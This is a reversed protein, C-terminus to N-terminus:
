FKVNKCILLNDVFNVYLIYLEIGFYCMLVSLKRMFLIKVLLQRGERFVKRYSGFGILRGCFLDFMDGLGFVVFFDRLLCIM